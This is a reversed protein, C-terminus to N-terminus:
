EDVYEGEARGKPARHNLWEGIGIYLGIVLVKIAEIIKSMAAMELRLSGM